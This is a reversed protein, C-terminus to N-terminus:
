DGNLAKAEDQEPNLYRQYDANAPDAPISAMVGDEDIRIINTDGLEDQTIEYTYEM